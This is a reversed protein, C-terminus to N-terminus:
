DTIGLTFVGSGNGITTNAVAMVGDRINYWDEGASLMALPMVLLRDVIMNATSALRVNIYINTADTDVVLAHYDTGTMSKTAIASAYVGDATTDATLTGTGSSLRVLVVVTEPVATKYGTLDWPSGTAVLTATALGLESFRLSHGVLNAAALPNPM